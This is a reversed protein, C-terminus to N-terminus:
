YQLMARLLEVEKALTEDHKCQEGITHCAHLVTSHDRGGFARGIIPLSSQTLEKTLLMAVQRPKTITRIRRKSYMDSLQIKYFDAVTKQIMEVTIHQVNAAIIDKLAEKAFEITIPRRHFGAFAKVRKLAGELERGNARIHQAIFFAVENSITINTIDAKKLLIAVRMELEPPLIQITLGYSFRSILRKDMLKKDSGIKKPFVDGTIVVQKQNTLLTNFIYFFEEMTRQKGALFQIDDILLLDVAQYTNRFLEFGKHQYAHIIDQAFDQAHIYRINAQPQHHYIQNGIAQMLHTKGVGVGGYIFLPNYVKDGPNGAVQLAAAHALENSRGVVLTDFTFCNDLGTKSHKKRLALHANPTDSAIPNAVVHVHPLPAHTAQTRHPLPALKLVVKKDQGAETVWKEICVLLKEKQVAELIFQNPAILALESESEQHTELLLPEVLTKFKLPSLEGELRTLCNAWFNALDM